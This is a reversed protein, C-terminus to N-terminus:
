SGAARELVPELRAARCDWSYDAARAFAARAIRERLEPDGLLRVIAAALAAADGAPVLAATKGDDLIERIAPLDSAVIARGAALYEFLKLPSTFHSSITTATNPLVLVSASALRGAVSRPPLLGTLEVRGALGLEEVRQRVRPLDPEGEHGGVILGRAAPVQQLAQLLVEVGKWEYLHGAYAVIPAGGDDPPPNWVRDPPLRVGDPVVALNERPGLRAILRDALARTITVYGEAARWVVQERQALRDLKRQSARAATAVLSPLEASVEPAYGHSEYVFPPRLGAPIRALLEAVGLDRTLLVDARAKGLARGLAFSLYGIRRAFQPGAVPAQEISFGPRRPLGYYEYPDRAPTHTDPRAILRVDHGRAALAHCTEMTQIGNARELPLRIDAFYTVRM